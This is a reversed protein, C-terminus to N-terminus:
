KLLASDKTDRLRYLIYENSRTIPVYQDLIEMYSSMASEINQNFYDNVCVNRIPVVLWKPPTNHIQTIFASAAQSDFYFKFFNIESTAASRQSYFYIQPENAWVFITDTPPVLKQIKQSVFPTDQWLYKNLNHTYMQNTPLGSIWILIYISTLLLVFYTFYKKSAQNILKLGIAFTPLCCVVLVFYYHLYDRGGISKTMIWAALSTLAIQLSPKKYSSLFGLGTLCIIPLLIFPTHTFWNLYCELFAASADKCIAPYKLAQSVYQHNFEVVYKLYQPIPLFFITTLLLPISSTLILTPIKKAKTQYTHLILLLIVILFSSPKLSICSGMLLGFLITSKTSPIKKTALDLGCMLLLVLLTEPQLRFGELIPMSLLITGIVWTLLSIKQSTYKRTIKYGVIITASTSLLVFIRIPITNTHFLFSNIAFPLYILPPKHDFVQTYPTEQYNIWRWGIYAYAGEDRDLPTTLFPLRVAFNLLLLLFPPLLYKKM